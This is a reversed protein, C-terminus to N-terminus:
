FNGSKVPSSNAEPIKQLSLLCAQPFNTSFSTSLYFIYSINHPYFSFVNVLRAYEMGRFFRGIGMWHNYQEETLIDKMRASVRDLMVNAKRIWAFNWTPGTFESQHIQLNVDKLAQIEYATGDSYTYNIKDLIIEAM